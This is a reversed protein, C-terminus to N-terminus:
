RTYLRLTEGTFVFLFDDRLEAALPKKETPIYFSNERGTQLNYTRIEKGSCYVLQEGRVQFRRVQKLPLLTHYNGFDDFVLVGTGPVSLYVMRNKETLGAPTQYNEFLNNLSICSQVLQRDANYHKLQDNLNDFVWFGGTSSACVPEAHVLGLEDLSVPSGIESMNRDIFLIQNYDKYYLLIRLPDSVDASFIRGLFASSFEDQEQLTGDLKIIREDDLVYANRLPDTYLNNGRIHIQATQKWSDGRFLGGQVPLQLFLICLLVGRTM